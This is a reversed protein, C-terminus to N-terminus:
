RVLPTKTGKANRGTKAGVGQTGRRKVERGEVERGERGELRLHGPEPSLPGALCKRGGKFKQEEWFCQCLCSVTPLHRLHTDLQSLKSVSGRASQTLKRWQTFFCSPTLGHVSPPGGM